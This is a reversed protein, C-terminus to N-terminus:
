RIMIEVEGFGELAAVARGPGNVPLIGCVSGTTVFQGARFGGCRDDGRSLWAATVALPDLPPPNAPADHVLAGNISLTCRRGPIPADQWAGPTPGMVYGVNAMLDALFAHLNRNDPVLRSGVMEVGLRVDDIAALIDERSYAGPPLDRSLCLAVEIEIALGPAWQWESGNPKSLAAFIPAAIPGLEPHDSVKWGGVSGGLAEGTLRQIELAHERSTPYTDAVLRTGSRRAAMLADAFASPTM